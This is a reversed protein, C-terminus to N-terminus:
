LYSQKTDGAFRSADRRHAGHDDAVAYLDVGIKASEYALGEEQVDSLIDILNKHLKYPVPDLVVGCPTKVHRLVGTCDIVDIEHPEDVYRTRLLHTDDEGIYLDETLADIKEDETEFRDFFRMGRNIIDGNDDQQYDPKPLGALVARFVCQDDVYAYQKLGIQKYIAYREIDWSGCQDLLDDAIDIGYVDAFSHRHMHCIKRMQKRTQENETILIQMIRDDNDPIIWRVCDTDAYIVNGTWTLVGNDDPVTGIKAITNLLRNRAHAAVWVGWQYLVMDYMDNDAQEVGRPVVDGTQDDYQYVARIPDQVFVGYLRALMSKKRNYAIEDQATASGEARLQKIESKAALKDAYLMIVSDTIYDPLYGYRSGLIDLIELRDCSYWRSLQRYDIDTLCIELMDASIIRGGTKSHKISDWKLTYRIWSPLVGFDHVRARLVYVRLHILMAHDSYIGTGLRLQTEEAASSPLPMPEFRDMPYRQTLIAWAYAADLDATAVRDVYKIGAQDPSAYCYGGFFACRLMAMTARDRDIQQLQEPTPANKGIWKTKLQRKGIMAALVSRGSKAKAYTKSRATFCQSIIRRVRGTATLPINGIGGYRESERHYYVTLIHADRACYRLSDASLLTEPTRIDDYDESLKCMGIEDGMMRLPMETYVASDRVEYTYDFCCRLIQRLSRAIFDRARRSAYSIDRRLFSLDYKANHIYVVMKYGVGLGLADALRRIWLKLDQITRGYVVMDDIAMCWLYVWACSRDPATSTEIDLGAIQPAYAHSRRYTADTRWHDPIQAREWFKPIPEDGTQVSRHSQNLTQQM